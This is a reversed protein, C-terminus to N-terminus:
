SGDSVELLAKASELTVRRSFEGVSKDGSAKAAKKVDRHESPKVRFAVLKSLRDKERKKPAGRKAHVVNWRRSFLSACRACCGSSDERDPQAKVKGGGRKLYYSRPDHESEPVERRGCLSQWTGRDKPDVDDPVFMYGHAVRENWPAASFTEWQPLKEPPADRTTRGHLWWCDFEANRSM